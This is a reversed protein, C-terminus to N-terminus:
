RSSRCRDAAAAAPSAGAHGRLRGDGADPLGDARRRLGTAGAHGASGSRQRGRERRHRCRRARGAGGGPQDRQGRGAPHPRRAPRRAPRRRAQTRAGCRARRRRAAIGLAANCADVLTSPTVPKVLLAGVSLQQEALSQLVADRSLATTMLVVPIQARPPERRGLAAADALGGMGPMDSDVLLLQYPASAADAQALRQLAESPAPRPM